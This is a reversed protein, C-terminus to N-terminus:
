GYIKADGHSKMTGNFVAEVGSISHQKITM